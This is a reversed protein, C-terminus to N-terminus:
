PEPPDLRGIIVARPARQRGRDRSESWLAVAPQGRDGIGLHVERERQGGGVTEVDATAVPGDVM